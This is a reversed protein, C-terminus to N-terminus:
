RLGPSSGESTYHSVNTSSPTKPVSDEAQVPSPVQELDSPLCAPGLHMNGLGKLRRARHAEWWVEPDVQLSSRDGPALETQELIVQVTSCLRLGELEPFAALGLASKLLGQTFPASEPAQAPSLRGALETPAFFSIIGSIVGPTVCKLEIFPTEKIFLGM